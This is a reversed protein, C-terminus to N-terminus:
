KQCFYLTGWQNKFVVANMQIQNQRAQNSLITQHNKKKPTQNEVSRIISEKSKIKM